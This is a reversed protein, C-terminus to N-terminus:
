EGYGACQEHDKRGPEGILLQGLERHGDVPNPNQRQDHHQSRQAFLDVAGTRPEPEAIELKLWRFEVLQRDDDCHRIEQRAVFIM